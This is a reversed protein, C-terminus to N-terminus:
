EEEAGEPEEEANHEGMVEHPINMAKAIHHLVHGEPLQPKAGSHASFVHTKPEQYAGSGSEFHHEVVHGGNEAEEIRLHGLTAKKGAGRRMAANHDLTEAYNAM